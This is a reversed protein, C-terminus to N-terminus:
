FVEIIRNTPLTALSPTDLYIAIRINLRAVDIEVENFILGRAKVM